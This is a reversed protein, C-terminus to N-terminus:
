FVKMGPFRRYFENYMFDEDNRQKFPLIEKKDKNGRRLDIDMVHIKTEKLRLIVLAQNFETGKQQFYNEIIPTLNENIENYNEDLLEYQNYKKETISKWKM